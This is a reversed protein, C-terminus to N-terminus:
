RGANLDVREDYRDVDSLDNTAVLLIGQQRQEAMIERVIAIGEADLNSMPEDLMLIAPRHILAFAYKARQKMGSSYARVPDDKRSFLAVRQLLEHARQVDFPLGRIAMAIRLNEEATFEEYLHLYPSVLGILMLRGAQSGSGSGTLVVKGGSPGLVGAIIKVLTSKGSGNRGSILLTQTQRLAFSIREFIVRRNFVKKIDQAAVSTTQNM